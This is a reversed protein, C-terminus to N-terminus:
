EIEGFIEGFEAGNAARFCRGRAGFSASKGKFDAISVIIVSVM